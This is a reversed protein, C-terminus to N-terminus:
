LTQCASGPLLKKRAIVIEIKITPPFIIKGDIVPNCLLVQSYDSHNECAYFDPCIVVSSSMRFRLMSLHFETRHALFWAQCQKKDHAM